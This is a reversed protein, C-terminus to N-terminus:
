TGRGNPHPIESFVPERAVSVDEELLKGVFSTIDMRPHGDDRRMGSAECVNDILIATAEQTVPIEEWFGM